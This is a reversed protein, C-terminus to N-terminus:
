SVREVERRARATARLDALSTRRSAAETLERLKRRAVSEVKRPERWDGPSLGTIVFTRRAGVTFVGRLHNGRTQEVAVTAGYPEAVTELFRRLDRIRRKTM